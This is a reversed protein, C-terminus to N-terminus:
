SRTSLHVCEMGAFVVQVGVEVPLEVDLLHLRHLCVQRGIGLDGCPHLAPPPVGLLQAGCQGVQLQRRGIRAEFRRVDAGGHASALLPAQGQRSGEQQGQASTAQAAPLRPLHAQQRGVWRHLVGQLGVPQEGQVRHHIDAGALGALQLSPQVLTEAM